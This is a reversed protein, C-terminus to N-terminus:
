HLCPPGTRPKFNLHFGFFYQPILYIQRNNKIINFAINSHHYTKISILFVSFGEIPEVRATFLDLSAFSSDFSFVTRDVIIMLPSIRLIPPLTSSTPNWVSQRSSAVDNNMSSVSSLSPSLSMFSTLM